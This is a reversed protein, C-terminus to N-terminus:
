RALEYARTRNAKTAQEAPAAEFSHVADNTVRELNELQVRNVGHRRVASMEREILRKAPEAGYQEYVKTADELTRATRAEDVASTADADRTAAVKAPDTTLETALTTATGMAVNDFTRRWTLSFRAVDAGSIRGHLVVKRAEGARMDAVPIEFHDGVRTMPYGYAYM